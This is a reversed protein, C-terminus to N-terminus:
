KVINGDFDMKSFIIGPQSNVFRKQIYIIKDDVNALIGEILFYGIFPVNIKKVWETQYSKNVKVLRSDTTAFYYANNCEIINSYIDPSNYIKNEIITSSASMSTLLNTATHNLNKDHSAFFTKYDTLANFATGIVLYGNETALLNKGEFGNASNASTSILNGDFDYKKIRYNDYTLDNNIKNQLLYIANDAVLIDKLYYDDFTSITNEIKIKWKTNLNKDLCILYNKSWLNATATSLIYNGNTLPKLLNNTGDQRDDRIRAFWISGINLRKETITKFKNDLLLVTMDYVSQKSVSDQYYKTPDIFYGFYNGNKLSILGTIIKATDDYEIEKKIVTQNKADYSIQGYFKNISSITLGYNFSIISNNISLGTISYKFYSDETPYFVIGPHELKTAEKKCSNVLVIISLFLITNVYKYKSM